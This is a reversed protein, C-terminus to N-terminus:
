APRRAAKAGFRWDPRAAKIMVVEALSQRTLLGLLRGDGDVVALAPAAELRPLAASLPERADVIPAVQHAFPAVPDGPDGNKLADLIDSRRLLGCFRGAHDILPFEEQAAALLYDVAERVCADRPLSFIRTEMADAISVGRTAEAVATMQAEGAAAMYVFIAVFILMPHGFLGIFGLGFALVQGIQAAIRTAREVGLWLALTARLVRGGDMPFAPLMNFLALSINTAALREALSFRPDDLHAFAGSDLTGTYLVLLTAIVVNVAPGALAILLEQSPKEPMKDVTAVGGIPLLTVESSHVGFRRATLIHGFEHLVVCTFIATILLLSDRAAPAGGQAYAAFGIFALFLLFTVHVRVATGAFTGLTISWRM